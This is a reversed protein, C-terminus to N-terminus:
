FVGYVTGYTGEEPVKYTSFPAKKFNPILHKQSHTGYRSGVSDSGNSFQVYWAMVMLTTSEYEFGSPSILIKIYTM